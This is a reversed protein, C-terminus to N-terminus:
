DWLSRFYKGFLRFGNDMRKSYEDYKEKDFKGKLSSTDMEYWEYEENEGEDNPFLLLQAPGVGTSKTEFLSVSDSDYNFFQDEWENNLSAFAFIMEGIVYDWAKFHYPDTEGVEIPLDCRLREPRDEMDVFPAGHKEKKLQRLMPEVLLALTHDMSWTDYDDIHISVDRYGEEVYPGIQVNM